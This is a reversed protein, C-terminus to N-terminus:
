AGSEEVTGDATGHELADVLALLTARDFGPRVVIRHGRTVRLELAGADGAADATVQVEAFTAVSRETNSRASVDRLKRRWAYFTAQPIRSRRCFAAVTLGSARQKRLIERWRGAADTRRSMVSLMGCGFAPAYIPKM